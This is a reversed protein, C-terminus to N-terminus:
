PRPPTAAADMHAFDALREPTDFDELMAAPAPVLRVASGLDRLIARGGQDGQVGLLRDYCQASWLVPNGPQGHRDPAVAPANTTRQTDLLANLLAPSVLPMDGLCVLLSGARRRMAARVGTHLSRSLGLEPQRVCTMRLRRAPQRGGSTIPGSAAPANAPSEVLPHLLAAIDPREPPLLVLVEEVASHLVANITRLLMPQGSADCALLKHAPATRSSRGAALIIALTGPIIPHPATDPM